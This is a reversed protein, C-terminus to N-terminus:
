RYVDAEIKYLQCPQNSPIGAKLKCKVLQYHPDSAEGPLLVAGKGGSRVMLGEKLPHMVSISNIPVIRRVVTIQPILQNIESKTIPAYRYDKHLADETTYVTAHVLDKHNASISGWCARTQGNKELTVFLGCNSKFNDPVVFADAFEEITQKQGSLSLDDLGFHRKLTRRSIEPLSARIKEVRADANKRHTDSNDHVASKNNGERDSESTESREAIALAAMKQFSVSPASVKPSTTQESLRLKWRYYEAPRIYANGPLNAASADSDSSWAFTLLVCAFTALGLLLVQM